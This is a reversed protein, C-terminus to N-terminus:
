TCVCCMGHDMSIRLQKIAIDIIHKAAPVKPLAVIKAITAIYDPSESLKIQNCLSGYKASETISSQKGALVLTILVAAAHHMIFITVAPHNVGMEPFFCLPQDGLPCYDGYVREASIPLCELQIIKDFGTLIFQSQTNNKRIIVVHRADISPHALGRRVFGQIWTRITETLIISEELTIACDAEDLRKGQEYIICTRANHNTDLLQHTYASSRVWAAGTGMYNCRKPRKVASAVGESM